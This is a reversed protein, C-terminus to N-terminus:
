LHRIHNVDAYEVIPNKQVEKIVSQELGPRVKVYIMKSGITKDTLLLRRMTNIWDSQAFIDMNTLTCSVHIIGTNSELKVMNWGM